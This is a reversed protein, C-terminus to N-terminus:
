QPPGRSQVRSNEEEQHEVRQPIVYHSNFVRGLAGVLRRDRHAGRVARVFHVRVVEQVPAVEAFQALFYNELPVVM